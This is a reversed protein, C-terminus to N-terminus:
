GRPLLALQRSQAVLEGDQTWLEGDEELMGGSVFRSTFQAMLWDAPPRSRIHCTLEVTPTWAVPLNANFITPPFADLATLLALTDMPEDNRLRFWGRMRADGSPTATLFGADRPDLRLDVKSHFAPPVAGNGAAPEEAQVHGLHRNCEELPTVDPAGDLRRIDSIPQALDGFSGLLALMPKGEADALRGSVTAFLRGTKVTECELSVPGPRGPRLYHATLTVPDPRETHHSLARAALSLLYGGNANGAIDWGEAITGRYHGPTTCDMATAAAFSM